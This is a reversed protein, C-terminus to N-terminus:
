SYTDGTTKGRKSPLDPVLCVLIESRDDSLSTSLVDYIDMKIIDTVSDINIIDTVSDMNIIDTVSRPM